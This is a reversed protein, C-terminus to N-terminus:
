NVGIPRFFGTRRLDGVVFAAERRAETVFEDFAELNDLPDVLIRAASKKAATPRRNQTPKRTSM